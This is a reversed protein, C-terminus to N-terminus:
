EGLEEYAPQVERLRFADLGYYLASEIIARQEPDREADLGDLLARAFRAETTGPSGRRYADLDYDPRVGRLDVRLHFVRDRLEQAPGGYRVGRVLRGTLRVTALDRDSAQVEDLKQQVRRDVQDASAAGTVDVVVDHVRRRDLEVFEVEVRPRDTGYEIRVELAGHPGVETTDLALASGAYALRVGAAATGGEDEFRPATHYHGVAMYAFPSLRAEDDSFPATVNQSPPCCGERSGHFLAVHLGPPDPPGVAALARPELPRELSPVGSTFCRGWISVPMEPLPRATWGASTFVHVHDPWTWGRAALLRPSWCPGTDSWPDHNGPAIFVPPCGPDDFAHVAFALTDADVDERDFLDGPILIAHMGREIAQAVCEELARRQERRREDRRPPPLWGWSSGLHLDSVQLFRASPM